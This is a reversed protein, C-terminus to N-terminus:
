VSNTNYEVVVGISVISAMGVLFSMTAVSIIPRVAAISEPQPTPSALTALSASIWADVGTGTSTADGVLVSMKAVYSAVVVMAVSASAGTM